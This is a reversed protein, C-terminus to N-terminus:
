ITEDMPSIPIRITFTTGCGPDSECSLGYKPGFYLRIREHVNRVGLGHKPTDADQDGPSEIGKLLDELEKKEMGKGNDSVKVVLIDGENRGTIRILGQHDVEKIGHYIANEVLPQLIIKLTTEKFLSPDIDIEYKFKERYRMEQITLYSQVHAIEDSIPILERGKSISIRFLKSLASTMQVVEKNQGMESMWIISDLTNYLFHPNIQAQLAKLDSKRKLEQERSHAKMLQLLRGVMIDYERALEKIEDTAKISGARMLDGTEVSKMIDKLKRIPKTISLSIRNTTLGIVLFLILGLLSYTILVDRWDPVMDDRFLVSVVHWGTLASSASMFFRDGDNFVPKEPNSAISLIENIPESKINSYLLQQTPHYVYNGEGDIIFNYGKEGTVLSQCLEKIRNFKLDALLVGIEKNDTKSIIGRSLSIVWSYRGAILNQVYSTSVVTRDYSKLAENFWLKDTIKTWPNIEVRSDGPIVRGRIDSILIFSIDNRAQIYNQLQKQIALYIERNETSDAELYQQVDSDNVVTLFIQEMGAIYSDIQNALEKLMARNSRLMSNRVTNITFRLSVIQMIFIATFVMVTFIGYIRSQLTGFSFIKRM